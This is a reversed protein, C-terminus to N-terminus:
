RPKALWRCAKPVVADCDEWTACGLRGAAETLQHKDRHPLHQGLLPNGSDMYAPMLWGYLRSKGIANAAGDPKMLAPTLLVLFTREPKRQSLPPYQGPAELMVDITRALQNRAIDFTVHTSVDSLVKAEFIIAVGTGPALLMADAHTPGELRTGSAAANERLYPVPVREDLHQGLWDRYGRPSRLSVEFFLELPGELAEAWQPFGSPPRLGSRALLSGFAEARTPGGTVHYLAMLAAAVWFREDKEMQRGRRTDAPTPKIGRGVRDNYEQAREISVQYYALQRDIEGPRPAPAFHGRLQDATFPLYTSHMVSTM